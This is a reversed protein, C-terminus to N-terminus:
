LFSSQEFTHLSTLLELMLFIDVREDMQWSTFNQIVRQTKDRKETKINYQSFDHLVDKQNNMDFNKLSLLEIIDKLPQIQHTEMYYMSCTLIM